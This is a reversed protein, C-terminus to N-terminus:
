LELDEKKNEGSVVSEIDQKISEARKKNFNIISNSQDILTKNQALDVKRNEEIEDIQPQAAEPTTTDAQEILQQESETETPVIKELYNSMMLEADDKDKYDNGVKKIVEKILTEPEINMEAAKKRAANLIALSEQSPNDKNFN